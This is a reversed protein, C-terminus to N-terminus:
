AKEGVTTALAYTAHLGKRKNKIVIEDKILRNLNNAIVSPHIKLSNFDGWRFPGNGRRMLELIKKKNIGNGRHSSSGNKAIEGGAKLKLAMSLHITGGEPRIEILGGNRMYDFDDKELVLIRKAMAVRRIDFRGFGNVNYQM